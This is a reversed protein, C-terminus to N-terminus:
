VLLQLHRGFHAAPTRLCPAHKATLQILASHGELTPHRAELDPSACTPVLSEHEAECLDVEPCPLQRALAEEANEFAMVDGVKRRIM